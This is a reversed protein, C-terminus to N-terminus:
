NEVSFKRNTNWATEGLGRGSGSTSSECYRPEGCLGRPIEGETGHRGVFGINMPKAEREGEETSPSRDESHTLDRSGTTAGLWECNGTKPLTKYKPIRDKSCGKTYPGSIIRSLSSRNSRREVQVNASRPAKDNCAVSGLNVPENREDLTPAGECMHRTGRKSTAGTSSKRDLYLTRRDFYLGNCPIVDHSGMYGSKGENRTGTLLTGRNQRTVTATRKTLPCIEECRKKIEEQLPKPFPYVNGLPVLPTVKSDGHQVNRWASGKIAQWQGCRRMGVASKECSYGISYNSRRTPRLDMKSFRAQLFM